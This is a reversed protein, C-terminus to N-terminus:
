LCIMDPESDARIMRTIEHESERGDVFGEHTVSMDSTNEGCYRPTSDGHNEDPLHTEEGSRTRRLARGKKRLKGQFPHNVKQQVYEAPKPTNREKRAPSEDEIDDEVDDYFLVKSSKEVSVTKDDSQASSFGGEGNPSRTSSQTNNEPLVAFPVSKRSDITDLSDFPCGSNGRTEKFKLCGAENRKSFGKSGESTEGKNNDLHLSHSFFEETGDFESSGGDLTIIYKAKTTRRLPRSVSVGM